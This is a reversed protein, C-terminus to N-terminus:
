KKISKLKIEISSTKSSNNGSKDKIGGVYKITPNKTNVRKAVYYISSKLYKNDISTENSVKKTSSSISDLLGNNEIKFYNKSVTDLVGSLDDTCELVVNFEEEEYGPLIKYKRKLDIEKSISMFKCTPAVTDYIFKVFVKTKEEDGNKIIFEKVLYNNKQVNVKDTTFKYKKNNFTGINENDSYIDYKQNSDISFNIYKSKDYEKNSYCNYYNDIDSKECSIGSSSLSVKLDENSVYSLKVKKSNSIVENYTNEVGDDLTPNVSVPESKEFVFSKTLDNIKNKTEQYKDGYKVIVRFENEISNGKSLDFYKKPIIIENRISEGITIWSDDKNIQWVYKDACGGKVFAKLIINNDTKFTTDLGLEYLLNVKYDRDTYCINDSCKINNSDINIKINDQKIDGYADDVLCAFSDTEHNTNAYDFLIDGPNTVLLKRSTYFDLVGLRSIASIISNVLNYNDIKVGQSKLIDDAVVKPILKITPEENKAKTLTNYFFESTQEIFNTKDSLNNSNKIADILENLSNYDKTINDVSLKLKHNKLHNTIADASADLKYIEGYHFGIASVPDDEMSYLVLRGSSKINNSYNVYRNTNSIEGNTNFMSLYVLANDVNRSFNNMYLLGSVGMGNFYAAQKLHSESKYYDKKYEDMSDYDKATRYPNTYGAEIDVVAAAGIQALYGGLSHGTVYISANKDEKLIKDYTKQAYEYALKAQNNEGNLAYTVDTIWEAFDPYDTGRFAIVYNNNKKFTIASFQNQYNVNNSKPNSSAYDFISWKFDKNSVLENVDAFNLFYYKQGDEQFEKTFTSVFSNAKRESLGEVYQFAFGSKDKLEILKENAEFFCNKKLIGNTLCVGTSTNSVYKDSSPVDEYVISALLALERTSVKNDNASYYKKVSTNITQYNFNNFISFIFIFILVIMIKKKMNIM